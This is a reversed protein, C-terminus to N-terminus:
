LIRSLSTWLSFLYCILVSEKVVVKKYTYYM